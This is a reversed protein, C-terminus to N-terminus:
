VKHPMCPGRSDIRTLTYISATNVYARLLILNPLQFELNGSIVRDRLPLCVSANISTRADVAQWLIRRSQTAQAAPVPYVKWPSAIMIVVGLRSSRIRRKNISDCSPFENSQKLRVIRRMLLHTKNDVVVVGVCPWLLGYLFQCFFQLLCLFFDDNEISERHWQKVHPPDAQRQKWKAAKETTSRRVCHVSRSSLKKDIWKAQM